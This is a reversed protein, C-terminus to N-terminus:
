GIAPARDVSKRARLLALLLGIDVGIYAGLYVIGGPRAGFDFLNLNLLSAVTIPVTLYLGARSIDVFTELSRAPFAAIGTAGLALFFAAFARLSFLTMPEPFFGGTAAAGNPGVILAGAVLAGVAVTFILGIYRAWAPAPAGGVEAGYVAPRRRIWDILGIASSALLALLGLLYPYTLLAHAQFKDRFAVLVVLQGAGFLWLYALMPVIRGLRPDRAADAAIAATGLCWGGITMALFPGVKWPFDSAAQAPVVFALAGVVGLAAAALWLLLTSPRALM